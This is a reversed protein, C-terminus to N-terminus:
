SFINQAQVVAIERESGDFLDPLEKSLAFKRGDFEGLEHESTDLPEIGFQVSVNGDGSFHSECLGFSRFRFKIPRAAAPPIAIATRKM